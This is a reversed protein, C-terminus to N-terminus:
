LEKVVEKAKSAVWARVSPMRSLTKKIFKRAIINSTNNNHPPISLDKQKDLSNKLLSPEEQIQINSSLNEKNLPEIQTPESIRGVQDRVCNILIKKLVSHWPYKSSQNYNLSRLNAQASKYIASSTISLTYNQLEIRDMSVNFNIPDYSFSFHRKDNDIQRAENLVYGNCEETNIYITRNTFCSRILHDAQKCPNLYDELNPLGFGLDRALQPNSMIEEYMNIKM